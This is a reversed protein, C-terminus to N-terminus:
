PKQIRHMGRHPLFQGQVKIKKRHRSPQKSSEHSLGQLAMTLSGPVDAADGGAM